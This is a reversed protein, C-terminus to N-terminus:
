VNVDCGVGTSLNCMSMGNTLSVSNALSFPAIERGTSANQISVRLDEGAFNVFLFKGGASWVVPPTTVSGPGGVADLSQLCLCDTLASELVVLAPLSRLPSVAFGDRRLKALGTSDVQPAGPGSANKPVYRGSVYLFLEDPMTIFGGATAQVDEWNQLCLRDTLVSGHIVPFSDLCVGQSSAWNDRQSENLAALPIRPAPPRSWHFGDRSFAAFVENREHYQPGPCKNTKPDTKYWDCELIAFFGVM